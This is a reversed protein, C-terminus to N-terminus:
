PFAGPALGPHLQQLGAVVDDRTGVDAFDAGGGDLSLIREIQARVDDATAGDPNALVAARLGGDHEEVRVGVTSWSGDLAFALDLVGAESGHGGYLGEVFSASVALSVSAALSFDGTFRLNPNDFKPM